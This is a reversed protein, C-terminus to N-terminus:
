QAKYQEIADNLIELAETKGGYGKSKIFGLGKYNKFLRKKKSYYIRNKIFM